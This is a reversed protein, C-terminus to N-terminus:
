DVYFRQSHLATMIYEIADTNAVIHFKVAATTITLCIADMSYIRENQSHVDVYFCANSVDM